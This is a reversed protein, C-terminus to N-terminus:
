TPPPKARSQSYERNYFLFSWELGTLPVNRLSPSFIRVFKYTGFILFLNDWVQQYGFDPVEKGATLGGWFDLSQTGTCALYWCFTNFMLLASILAANLLYLFSLDKHHEIYAYSDWISMITLLYWASGIMLYFIFLLFYRQNELGLCNNVWPCHHDMKFCCVNCISCHHTRLPKVEKCKECYRGWFQRLNEITKNRYMLLAKIEANIGVFRESNYEFSIAGSQDSGAEM